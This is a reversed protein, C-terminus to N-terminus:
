NQTWKNGPIIEFLSVKGMELISVQITCGLKLREFVEERFELSTYVATWEMDRNSTQYADWVQTWFLGGRAAKWVDVKWNRLGLVKIIRSKQRKCEFGMWWCIMNVKVKWIYGSDSWRWWYWLFWVVDDRALIIEYLTLNMKKMKKLSRVRLIQNLSIKHNHM